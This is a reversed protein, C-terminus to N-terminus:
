TSQNGTPHKLIDNGASLCLMLNEIDELTIVPDTLQMLEMEDRFRRQAMYRKYLLKHMDELTRTFMSKSGVYITWSVTNM